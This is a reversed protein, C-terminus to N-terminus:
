VRAKAQDDRSALDESIAVALALRLGVDSDIGCNTLFGCFFAALFLERFKALNSM